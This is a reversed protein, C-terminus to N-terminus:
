DKIRFKKRVDDVKENVREEKTRNLNKIKDYGNDSEPEVHRIPYHKGTENRITRRADVICLAFLQIILAAGTCLLAEFRHMSVLLFIGACVILLILVYMLLSIGSSVSDEKAMAKKLLM